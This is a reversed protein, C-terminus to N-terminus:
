PALTQDLYKVHESVFGPRLHYGDYSVPFGNEDNVMILGGKCLYDLPDVVVAGNRRATMAIRELLPGQGALFEEKSFVEPDKYHLGTYHRDLSGAPSFKAGMPISLVLTVNKGQDHLKRILAGLAEMSKDIARPDTAPIGDITNEENTFYRTWAGALVVRDISPHEKLQKELEPMLSLGNAFQHVKFGPIPPLGTYVIFIAGRSLGHNKGLLEVARPMYQEMNSDGLLLAQPGHGGVEFLGVQSDKQHLGKFFDKDELATVAKEVRIDIGPAIVKTMALVGIIGTLVFGAMLSPVIWKSQNRRIKQEVFYYTLTALLLAFGLAMWIEGPPSGGGNVIRVFSLAPWHFLYLPYSILGVWVIAPHSLFRRNVWNGKGANILLLTGCVPLLARWGPFPKAHSVFAHWGPHSDGPHIWTMSLVLLILGVCSIWVAHKPSEEKHGKDYHWWALLSGGLFEWGRYPTLFFDSVVNQYSMKVNAIFSAVLLLGMVVLLPWKEWKRKWLLLMLLLPFFIYFQEEVALSWLNLLPKLNASIDFYGSEKWFVINQIFLMGAAMHKGLQQFEGSLLIMWGYALTIVLMAILAPFIRRIRRAYFDKFSFSGDQHAKYLIGSILYGSIVFFIDVGTFGGPLVHPFAHYIVVGLVAVARLGDIDSRYKLSIM